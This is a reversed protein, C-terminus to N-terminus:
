HGRVVPLWLWLALLTALLVPPTLVLGVKMYQAWTIRQGKGALV